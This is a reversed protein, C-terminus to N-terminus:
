AVYNAFLAPDGMDMADALFGLHYNADQLCKQRGTPGYRRALEPQAAFQRTVLDAALATQRQRLDEGLGPRSPPNTSM